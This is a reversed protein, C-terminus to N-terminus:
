DWLYREDWELGHAELLARYEDQFGGKRHHEEQNAIYARVTEIQRQGVSFVGYGSQWAFEPVKSKMWASSAQKLEKIWDAQTVTRSLSALIHVHDEVGGVILPLCGLNKSIGALYPM